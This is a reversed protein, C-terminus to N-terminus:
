IDFLTSNKVVSSSLSFNKPSIRLLSELLCIRIKSMLWSIDASSIELFVLRLSDRTM